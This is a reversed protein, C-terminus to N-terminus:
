RYSDLTLVIAAGILYPSAANRGGGRCAPLSIVRRRLAVTMKACVQQQSADIAGGGIAPAIAV